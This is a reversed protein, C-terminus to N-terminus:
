AVVIAPLTGVPANSALGAFYSGSWMWLGAQLGGGLDQSRRVNPAYHVLVALHHTGPSLRGLAYHDYEQRQISFRAPGRGIWDGDLWLEYRTDALVGLEVDGTPTEVVFARRFLAVTGPETPGPAWIPQGLPGGGTDSLLLPLHAVPSSPAQSLAPPPGEPRLGCLLIGM